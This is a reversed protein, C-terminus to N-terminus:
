LCHYMQGLQEIMESILRKDDPSLDEKQTKSYATLLFVTQELKFYCIVRYGGRKGKGTIKM